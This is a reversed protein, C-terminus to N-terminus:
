RKPSKISEIIIGGVIAGAIAGVFFSAVWSWHVVFKFFPIGVLMGLLVIWFYKQETPHLDYEGKIMKMADIRGGCGPCTVDSPKNGMSIFTSNNAMAEGMVYAQASKTLQRKCHPCYFTESPM